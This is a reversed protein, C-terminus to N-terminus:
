MHEVSKYMETLFNLRPRMLNLRMAKPGIRVDLGLTGIGKGDLPDDPFDVVTDSGVTTERYPARGVDDARAPHATLASLALLPVSTLIAVLTRTPRM